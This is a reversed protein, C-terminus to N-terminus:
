NNFRREIPTTDDRLTTWLWLRDPNTAHHMYFEIHLDPDRVVFLADGPRPGPYRQAGAWASMPTIDTVEGRGPGFIQAHSAHIAAALDPSCSRAARLAAALDAVSRTYLTQARPPRHLMFYRPSSWQMEPSGLAAPDEPIELLRALDDALLGEFYLTYLPSDGTWESLRTPAVLTLDPRLLGSAPLLRYPRAGDWGDARAVDIAARVDGPLVASADVYGQPASAVFRAYLPCGRPRGDDGRHLVTLHLLRTGDRDYKWHMRWLFTRDDAVLTRLKKSTRSM